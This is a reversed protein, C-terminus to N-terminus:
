NFLVLIFLWSPLSWASYNFRLKCGFLFEHSNYIFDQINLTEKIRKPNLITWKKASYFFDTLDKWM